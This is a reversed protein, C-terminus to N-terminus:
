RDDANEKILNELDDYFTRKIVEGGDVTIEAGTIFESDESAFFLAAKAIDLPKGVRGLLVSRSMFGLLEEKNKGFQACVKDFMPTDVFGPYITNVRINDSSFEIAAVKTISSVASKSACYAAQGKNPIFIFNSSVNIISGGNAENTKMAPAAHKIGLFVGDLNVAMVRRWEQLSMDLIPKAFAIGANNVLVDLRGFTSVAHDVTSQWSTEDTVDLKCFCAKGGESTIEEVAGLGTEELVDAVIVTAGESAFLRSIGKGIGGSSGTVICVKGQLRAKEGM